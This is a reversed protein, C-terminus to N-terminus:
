PADKIGFAYKASNSTNEIRTHRTHRYLEEKMIATFNTTIPLTGEVEFDLGDRKMTGKFSTWRDKVSYTEKSFLRELPLFSRQFNSKNKVEFDRSQVYTIRGSDYIVIQKEEADSSKSTIKWDFFYSGICCLGASIITSYAARRSKEYWNENPKSNFAKKGYYAPPSAIFLAANGLLSLDKKLETPLKVAPLKNKLEKLTPIKM